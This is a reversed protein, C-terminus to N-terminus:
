TSAIAEVPDLKSARSAPAIGAIIGIFGSLFLGYIINKLNLTFDMGTIKSGFYTLLFVFFLGIVGGLLSLIISEYLFQQLIFSRKAGLAKQIGIIKTQEKVSVYMINAIGFGGVLISFGGIILGAIDIILFIQGFNESLISARNLAFNDKETPKLRRIARMHMKLDDSVQINSLGNKPKIWITPYFRDNKVNVITKGFNVPILVVQDMSLGMLDQGQLTTVGIVMLKKGDIKIYKGLPNVKDFLQQAIENGIIAVNRGNASEFETFYRGIAIGFVHVDIYDHTAAQIQINSMSKNKYAINKFFGIQYSAIDVTSSRKLLEKRDNLNPQPRKMYDWWKYTGGSGGWPSQQLYVVDDGLTAISDKVSSELADIVSFVSIIAFIGITIGLLSLFTRLKNNVLSQIAIFFSEKLLRLIINM